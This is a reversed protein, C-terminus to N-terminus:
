LVLRNPVLKKGRVLGIWDIKKRKEGRRGGEEEM